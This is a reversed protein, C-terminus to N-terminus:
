AISPSANRSPLEPKLHPHLSHRGRLGEAPAIHTCRREQRSFRLPIKLNLLDITHKLETFSQSLASALFKEQPWVSTRRGMGERCWHSFSQEQRRMFAPPTEQALPPLKTNLLGRFTRTLDWMQLVKHSPSECSLQISSFFSTAEQIPLVCPLHFSHSWYHNSLTCWHLPGGRWVMYVNIFM